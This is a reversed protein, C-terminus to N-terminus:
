KYIATSEVATVRASVFNVHSQLIDVNGVVSASGKM